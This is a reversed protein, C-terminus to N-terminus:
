PERRLKASCYGLGMVKNGMSEGPMEKSLRDVERNSSLPSTTGRVRGIRWHSNEVSPALGCWKLVTRNSYTKDDERFVAFMSPEALGVVHM